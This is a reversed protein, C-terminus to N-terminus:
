YLPARTNEDASGEYPEAGPSTGYDETEDGPGMQGPQQQPTKQQAIMQLGAMLRQIESVEDPTVQRDAGVVALLEDVIEALTRPRTDPGPQQYAAIPREDPPTPMVSM